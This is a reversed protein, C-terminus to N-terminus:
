LENSLMQPKPAKIANYRACCMRPLGSILALPVCGKERPPGHGLKRRPTIKVLQLFSTGGKVATRGSRQSVGCVPVVAQALDAGGGGRRLGGLLLLLLLLLVAALGPSVRGRGPDGRPRPRDDGDGFERRSVRWLLHSVMYYFSFTISNNILCSQGYRM